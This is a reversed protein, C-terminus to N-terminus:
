QMRLNLLWRERYTWEISVSGEAEKGGTIILWPLEAGDDLGDGNIGRPLM